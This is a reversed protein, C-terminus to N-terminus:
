RAAEEAATAPNEGYWAKRWQNMQKIEKQQDKIVKEAM